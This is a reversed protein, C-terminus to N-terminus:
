CKVSIVQEVEHVAICPIATFFRRATQAFDKKEEKKEIQQVIDASAIDDCFFTNQGIVHIM